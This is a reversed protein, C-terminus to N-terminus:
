IALFSWNRDKVPVPNKPAVDGCFHRGPQGGSFSVDNANSTCVPNMQYLRVSSRHSPAATGVGSLSNSVLLALDDRWIKM